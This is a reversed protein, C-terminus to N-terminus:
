QCALAALPALRKSKFHIWENWENWVDSWGDFRILVIEGKIQVIQGVYWRHACDLCNLLLGVTAKTAIYENVINSLEPIFKPISDLLITCQQKIKDTSMLSITHKAGNAILWEHFPQDSAFSVMNVYVPRYQFDKIYSHQRKDDYVFNHCDVACFYMLCTYCQITAPQLECSDCLRQALKTETHIRQM